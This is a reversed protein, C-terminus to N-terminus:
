DYEVARIALVADGIDVGEEKTHRRNRDATKCCDIEASECRELLREHEDLHEYAAGDDDGEDDHLRSLSRQNKTEHGRSWNTCSLRAM